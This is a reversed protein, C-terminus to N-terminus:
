STRFDQSDIMKKSDNLCNIRLVLSVDIQNEVIIGSIHAGKSELFCDVTASSM